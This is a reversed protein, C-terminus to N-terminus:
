GTILKMEGPGERSDVRWQGKYYSGDPRIFEGYGDKYGDKFKGKYYSNDSYTLTGTGHM